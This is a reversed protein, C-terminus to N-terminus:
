EAGESSVGGEAERKKVALRNEGMSILVIGAILLFAGAIKNHSLEEKFLSVSVILVMVYGISMLPYAVVLKLRRLLFVWLIGRLMFFLYAALILMAAHLNFAGMNRGALKSFVQGGVLFLYSVLLMMTIVVIRKRRATM